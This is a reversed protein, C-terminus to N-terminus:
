NFYLAQGSPPFGKEILELSINAVPALIPKVSIPIASDAMRLAIHTLISIQNQILEAKFTYYTDQEAMMRCFISRVFNEQEPNVRIVPNKMFFRDCEPNFRVCSTNVFDDKFACAYAFGEKGSLCWSSNIGPKGFLLVTGDFRYVDQNCRIEGSGTILAIKRFADRGGYLFTNKNNEIMYARFGDTQLHDILHHM